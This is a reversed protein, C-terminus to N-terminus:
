NPGTVNFNGIDDGTGFLGDEGASILQFKRPNYANGTTPNLLAKVNAEVLEGTEADVTLYPDERDYDRRHFYAIPNGWADKLEFLDSNAHTTLSKKVEDEDSNVLLEESLGTGGYKESWLSLCLVEGGLNTENPEPGWDGNWSSPPYDGMEQEYDAIAVSIQQLQEETLKIKTVELSETLKPLLFTALLGLIVIVALLEILTFGARRRSSTSREFTMM